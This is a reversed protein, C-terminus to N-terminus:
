WYLHIIHCMNNRSIFATFYCKIWLNSKCIGSVHHEVFSPYVNHWKILPYLISCSCEKHPNLKWILLLLLLFLVIFAHPLVIWTRIIIGIRHIVYYKKYGNQVVIKYGIFLHSKQPTPDLMYRCVWEKKYYFKILLYIFFDINFPFHPSKM